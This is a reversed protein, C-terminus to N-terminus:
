RKGESFLAAERIWEMLESDIEEPESILVHHTWRGPYPESVADIRPSDLRRGLGFTVAMYAKPRKKANRLKAFSVCAFMRRNYFSIQTKQVKIRLGEIEAGLRHELVEYLPLAGPMQEFFLLVEGDM